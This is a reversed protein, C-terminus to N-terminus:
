CTSATASGVVRGRNISRVMAAEKSLAMAEGKSLAMAERWWVRNRTAGVIEFFSKFSSSLVRGPKDFSRSLQSEKIYNVACLGAWFVTVTIFLRCPIILRISGDVVENVATFSFWLVLDSSGQCCCFGLFGEFIDM